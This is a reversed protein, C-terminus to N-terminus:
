ILSGNEWVNYKKTGNKQLVIEGVKIYNTRQKTSSFLEIDKVWEM